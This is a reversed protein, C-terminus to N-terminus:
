SPSHTSGSEGGSAPTDHVVLGVPQLRENLRAKLQRLEHEAMDLELLTTPHRLLINRLTASADYRGAALVYDPDVNATTDIGDVARVQGISEDRLEGIMHTDSLCISAILPLGSVISTMTDLHLLHWWVRRREELSVPDLDFQSGDRHLCMSQAIRVAIAVFSCSSLDEEERIMMSNFLIFAMLSYMSPNSPFGVIMLAKPLMNRLKIPVGPPTTDSGLPTRLTISGTFLVAFLLPLFSPNEALVGESVHYGDWSSRWDWFQQHLSEFTPMHILPILPHVNRRFAKILHECSEQHPLAALIPALGTAGSTMGTSLQSDWLSFNAQVIGM